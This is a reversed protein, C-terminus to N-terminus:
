GDPRGGAREAAHQDGQRQLEAADRDRVFWGIGGLIGALRWGDAGLADLEATTTAATIPFRRYEWRPRTM